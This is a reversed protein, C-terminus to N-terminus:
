SPLYAIAENYIGRNRQAKGRKTTNMYGSYRVVKTQTGDLSVLTLKDNALDIIDTKSNIGNEDLDDPSKFVPSVPTPTISEVKAPERVPALAENLTPADPLWGSQDEVRSLGDALNDASAVHEFTVSISNEKAIKNAVWLYKTGAYGRKTTAEFSTVRDNLIIVETLGFEKAAEVAKLVAFCEAAFQDPCVTNYFIGRKRPQSDILVGIRHGGNNYKAIKGFRNITKRVTNKTLTM